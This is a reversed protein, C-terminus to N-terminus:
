GLTDPEIETNALTLIHYMTQKGSLRVCNFNCKTEPDDIIHLKISGDRQNCIRLALQEIGAEFLRM